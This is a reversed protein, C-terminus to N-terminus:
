LPDRGFVDEVPLVLVIPQRSPDMEEVFRRMPGIREAVTLSLVVRSGTPPPLLAALGAFIPMDKRLIASLGESRILTAGTIGIDLMGTVLEDLAAEDRAIMVLLRRSEGRDNM